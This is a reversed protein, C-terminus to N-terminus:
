PRAAPSPARRRRATPREPARQPPTGETNSCPAPQTPLPQFPLEGHFGVALALQRGALRRAEALTLTPDSATLRTSLGTLLALAITAVEGPVCKHFVGQELGAAVAEGLPQLLRDNLAALSRSLEVSGAARLELEAWLRLELVDEPTLPLGFDILDALREPPAQRHTSDTTRQLRAEAAGLSQALAETLLQARNAFHYHVLAASVGARKAIDAIRVGDFGDRAILELAAGLVRERGDHASM